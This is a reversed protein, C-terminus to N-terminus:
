GLQQICYMFLQTAFLMQFKQLSITDYLFSIILSLSLSWKAKLLGLQIGTQEQMRVCSM